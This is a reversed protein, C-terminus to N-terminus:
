CHGFHRMMGCVLADQWQMAFQTTYRAVNLAYFWATIFCLFTSRESVWVRVPVRM